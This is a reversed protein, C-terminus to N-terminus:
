GRLVSSSSSWCSVTTALPWVTTSTLGAVALGLVLLSLCGLALLLGGAWTLLCRRGVLELNVCLLCGWGVCCGLPLSSLSSLEQAQVLALTIALVHALVLAYALVLVSAVLLVGRTTHIQRGDRAAPPTLCMESPGKCRGHCQWPGRCRLSRREPVLGHIGATACSEHKARLVGQFGRCEISPM